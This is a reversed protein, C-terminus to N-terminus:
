FEQYIFFKGNLFVCSYPHDCRYYDNFVDPSPYFQLEATGDRHQVWFIDSGDEEIFIADPYTQRIYQKMKDKM